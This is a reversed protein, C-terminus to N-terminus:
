DAGVYPQSKFLCDWYKKAMIETHYVSAVEKFFAQHTHTSLADLLANCLDDHNGPEVLRGWRGHQLVESCPGVNSAIVPVNAALAEILAIGFGEEATTSFAFVDMQGLLEPVDKRNGWFKVNKAIGLQTVLSELSARKEGSGILWLEATPYQKLVKPLSKILTSQDKIKNLRAVMGIVPNATAPNCEREIQARRNISSVDCGNHITVVRHKPLKLDSTLREHVYDSCAVLYSTSFLSLHALCYWKFALNLEKPPANGVGSLIRSIGALRAGLSVFAHNGFSWCILADASYKRFYHYSKKVLQFYQGSHHDLDVIPIGLREFEARGPQNHSDLVVISNDAWESFYRLTELLLAEVGGVGLSNIVHVVKPRSSQLLNDKM